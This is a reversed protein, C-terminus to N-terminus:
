HVSTGPGPVEEQIRLAWKEQLMKSRAEKREDTWPIKKKGLRDISM